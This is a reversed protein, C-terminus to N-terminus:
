FARRDTLRSYSMRCGRVYELIAVGPSFTEAPLAERLLWQRLSSPVNAEAIFIALRDLYEVEKATFQWDLFMMAVYGRRDFTQIFM